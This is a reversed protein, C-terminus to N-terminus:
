WTIIRAIDEISGLRLSLPKKNTCPIFLRYESQYEYKKRKLWPSMNYNGTNEDYYTVSDAMLKGKINKTYAACRNLFAMPDCIVVASDGMKKMEDSITLHNNLLSDDFVGYTCFVLGDSNNSYKCQIPSPNKISIDDITIEDVHLVADIGEYADGRGDSDNMKNELERFYTLTQMYVEGKELLKEMFQKKGFKILTVPTRSNRPYPQVGLEAFATQPNDASIFRMNSWEKKLNEINTDEHLIKIMM